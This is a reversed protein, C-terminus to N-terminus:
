SVSTGPQSNLTAGEKEARRRQAAVLHQLAEILSTLFVPSDDITFAVGITTSTSVGGDVGDDCTGSVSADTVAEPLRGGDVGSIGVAWVRYTTAKRRSGSLPHAKKTTIRM